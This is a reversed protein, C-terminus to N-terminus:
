GRPKLGSRLHQEDIGESKRRKNQIQKRTREEFGPDTVMDPRDKRKEQEKIARDVERRYVPSALALFLKQIPTLNAQCDALHYGMEQLNYVEICLAKNRNM